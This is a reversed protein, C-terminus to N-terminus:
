KTNTGRRAFAVAWTLSGGTAGETLTSLTARLQEKVAAASTSRQFTPGTAATFTILDAWTSGSTSHQVKVTATTVNREQTIHLHAVGGATSGGNTLGSDVAAGSGTSTSAALQRLWRGGDYGLSGQLEVDCSVVDHAPASIDWAVPDGTMLLARTGAATSDPGVTTVVRTSGGLADDFFEGISNNDTSTGASTSGTASFLGSLSLTVDGLGKIFTKDDNGYTTTENAEASASLTFDNLFESMNYQDILVRVKKGHRFTPM